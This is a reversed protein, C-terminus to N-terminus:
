KMFGKLFTIIDADLVNELSSPDAVQILRILTDMQHSSGDALIQRVALTSLRRNYERMSADMAGFIEHAQRQPVTEDFPLECQQCWPVSDLGLDSDFACSRISGALDEFRPPINVGVAEGLEPVLVLQALANVRVRRGEIENRLSGAQRHYEDHHSLYTQAYKQRFIRVNVEIAAWISPTSELNSPEMRAVLTNRELALSDQDSGFSMRDLYTKAESIDEVILGMQKARNFVEMAVTLSAPSGFRDEAANYFGVYDSGHGASISLAELDTLTKGAINGSAPFASQFGELALRTKQIDARFDVVHRLPRGSERIGSSAPEDLKLAAELASSYPSASEWTPSPELTVADLEGILTDSFTISGVLGGTIRDGKFPQNASITVGHDARLTIEARAHRVFTLLYFLALTHNLGHKHVLSEILESAPMQSDRSSLEQEIVSHVRCHTANFETSGQQTVGLGPGFREITDTVSRDGQILGSFLASIDRDRLTSQFSVHDYVPSPFTESLMSAALETVCQELSEQTFFEQGEQHGTTQKYLRGQAYSATIRTQLISQQLERESRFVQGIRPDRRNSTPPLSLASSVRETEAVADFKFRPVALAIRSDQPRERPKLGKNALIIRFSTDGSLPQFDQPHLRERVIIEGTHIV